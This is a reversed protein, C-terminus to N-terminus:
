KGDGVVLVANQSGFRNWNRQAANPDDWWQGDVLFRYECTGPPLSVTAKWLGNKSKKLAVPAQEWSTFNGALLVTKAEPATLSFIVKQKSSKSPM